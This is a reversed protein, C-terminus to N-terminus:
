GARITLLGTLMAEAHQSALARLDLPLGGAPELTERWLAGLLVPGVLGLAYLRAYGPRVEGRKQAQEIVEALIALARSAVDDHWVRALQPLNRSEPWAGLSLTDSIHIWIESLKAPM